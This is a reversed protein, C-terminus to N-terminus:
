VNALTVNVSDQLGQATWVTYETGNITVTSIDWGRVQIGNVSTAFGWEAPAALYWQVENWNPEQM